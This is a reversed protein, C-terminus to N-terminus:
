RLARRTGLLAAVRERCRAYIDRHVFEFQGQSAVLDTYDHVAQVVAHPLPVVAAHNLFIKRAFFPFARSRWEHFTPSGREDSPPFQSLDM